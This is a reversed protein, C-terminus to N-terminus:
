ATAEHRIGEEDIGLADLLAALKASTELGESVPDSGAVIGAGAYLRVEAGRVDACRLAMLWRGDGKRDSWGVVGAFYERDFGEVDAIAQRAAAAPYGCVAPTPHLVEALELSPTEADALAGEIRTGLHWMYRTRALSPQPPVRLQRCFPSLRDAIWEAVVAHERRDKESALLGDAAAADTVPDLSRRASGALPESVVRSGDKEVLLEPTAGVLTRIGGDGGAPLPVAFVTVLPDVRLRAILRSLDVPADARAVLSRALVVKRLAGADLSSTQDLLDLIRTVRREYESRSPRPTVKWRTPLVAPVPLPLRAVERNWSTDGSCRLFGTPQFLHPAAAHDFPLAGVLMPADDDQRIQGVFAAHLDRWSGTAPMVRRVGSTVLLDRGSALVFPSAASEAQTPEARRASGKAQSDV